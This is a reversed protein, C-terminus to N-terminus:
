TGDYTQLARECPIMCFIDDGIGVVALYADGLITVLTAQASCVRTAMWTAVVLLRFASCHTLLGTHRVYVCVCAFSRLSVYVDRSLM